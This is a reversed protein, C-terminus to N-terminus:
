YVFKSEIEPLLKEDKISDKPRHIVMRPIELIPIGLYTSIGLMSAAGIGAITATAIGFSALALKHPSMKSFVNEM